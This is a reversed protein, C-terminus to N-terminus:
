KEIVVNPFDARLKALTKRTIKCGTLYLRTLNPLKVLAQALKEGTIQDCGALNLKDLQTTKQTTENASRCSKKRQNTQLMCSKLKHPQTTENTSSCAKRRHNTPVMCSILKDTQANKNISRCAERRHNTPM